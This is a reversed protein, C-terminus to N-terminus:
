HYHHSGDINQLQYLRHMTCYRVQGDWSYHLHERCTVFFSLRLSPLYSVWTVCYTLSIVLRLQARRLNLDETGEMRLGAM